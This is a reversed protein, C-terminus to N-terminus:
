AKSARVLADEAQYLSNLAESVALRKEYNLDGALAQDLSQQAQRVRGYATGVPDKIKSMSRREQERQLARDAQSRQKRQVTKIRNRQQASVHYHVTSKQVGFLKAIEDLTKGAGGNYLRIMEGKAEPTLGSSSLAALAPDIGTYKGQVQDKHKALRMYGFATTPHVTLHQRMWEVWEGKVVEKQAKLLLEGCVIADKLPNKVGTILAHKQNIQKALNDLNMLRIMRGM